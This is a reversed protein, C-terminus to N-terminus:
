PQMHFMLNLVVFCAFICGSAILLGLQIAGLMQLLRGYRNIVTPVPRQDRQTTELQAEIAAYADVVWRELVNQGIHGSQPAPAEASM